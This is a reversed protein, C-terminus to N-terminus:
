KSAGEKFFQEKKSEKRLDELWNQAANYYNTIGLELEGKENLEAAKEKSEKPRTKLFTELCREAGKKDKLPGNYIFAMDYWLKHNDRDYAYQEKLTAVQESYMNAMKYCETMGRYLRIMASDKPATLNLAQELYAVGEKKWSTKACSRGLYYLLDVNDPIDERIAELVDHAEYYKEEAYYCIGLYYQTLLTSDGQAMLSKYRDIAVPYDKKLCYSLANQRNVILNTSDIKRYKETAEIAYPYQHTANYISGLKAASLYDDPYKDQIILYNGVAADPAKVVGEMAQAQLHLVILSSDTESLVSSEGLAEQFQQLACLLHIYQLRVYKNKPNLDLAQQYYKLAEKNKALTKCCEAAEILPLASDPTEAIVQQFTNLAEANRSLGKLAKGKQFLLTATPKEKEILSIATEYDYNAMAEQIHKNQAMLSSSILLSLLIFLQKM